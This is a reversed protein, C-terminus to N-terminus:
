AIGQGQRAKTANMLAIRGGKTLKYSQNYLRVLGHRHLRELQVRVRGATSGVAAAIEYVTRAEVGSIERAIELCVGPTLPATMAM